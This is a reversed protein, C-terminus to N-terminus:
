LCVKYIKFVNTNLQVIQEEKIYCSTKGKLHKKAKMFDHREM